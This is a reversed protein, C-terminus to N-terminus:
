TPASPSASSWARCPRYRPGRGDADGDVGTEADGAMIARQIPAAGRWRPLLSAHLNLCGLRPTSFRSAAPDHWLRRRGGVDADHARFRTRRRPRACADRPDAGSPRLARRRSAVPSPQLEMGRGAPKPARTYVAVVEHGHGVIEILTPVAFDPRAWSSSACPRRGKAMAAPRRREAAARAQGGQRIEEDRPRAEAEFYPRHLAHRQPPRDRAAPLHRAPRRGRDRQAAGDLDHYRVRVKAPREVEEYYDPISLCGEEYVRNKTRPGCSRRISAAGAAAEARGRKALDITVVRQPVGVQIAALGIGPADYMTEFM